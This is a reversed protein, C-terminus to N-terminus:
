GDPDSRRFSYPIGDSRGSYENFSVESGSCYKEHFDVATINPSSDVATGHDAFVIRPTPTAPSLNQGGEVHNSSPLTNMNEFGGLSQLLQGRSHDYQPDMKMPQALQPLVGPPVPRRIAGYHSQETSEDYQDQEYEFLSWSRKQGSHTSYMSLFFHIGM